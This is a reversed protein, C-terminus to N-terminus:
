QNAEIDFILKPVPIRNFGDLFSYSSKLPIYVNSNGKTQIHWFYYWEVFKTYNRNWRSRKISQKELDRYRWGIRDFITNVFKVVTLHNIPMTGQKIREDM